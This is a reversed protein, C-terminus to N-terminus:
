NGGKCTDPCILKTYGHIGTNTPITGLTGVTGPM